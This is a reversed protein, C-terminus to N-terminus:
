ATVEDPMAVIHYRKVRYPMGEETMGSEWVYGTIIGYKRMECIRKPFSMIGLYIFAERSTISGHLKMYDIAKKVQTPRKNNEM